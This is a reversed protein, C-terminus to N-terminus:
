DHTFGRARVEDARSVRPRLQIKQNVQPLPEDVEFTFYTPDRQDSGGHRDVRIKEKGTLGALFEQMMDATLEGWGVQMTRKRTIQAM